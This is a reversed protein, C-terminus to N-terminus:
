GAAHAHVARRSRRARACRAVEHLGRSLGDHALATKMVRGLATTQDLAEVPAAAAPAAAEGEGAPEEAPM